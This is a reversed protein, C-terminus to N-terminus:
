LVSYPHPHPLKRKKRVRNPLSLLHSNLKVKVLKTTTEVKLRNRIITHTKRRTKFSVSSTSVVLSFVRQALLDLYPYEAEGDKAVLNFFLLNPIAVSPQPNRGTSTGSKPCDLRASFSIM